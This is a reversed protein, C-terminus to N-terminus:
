SLEILRYVISARAPSSTCYPFRFYKANTRHTRGRTSRAVQSNANRAGCSGQQQAARRLHLQARRIVYGGLGLALEDAPGALVSSIHSFADVLLRPSLGVLHHDSRHSDEAVWCRTPCEGRGPRISRGRGSRGRTASPLLPWARRSVRGCAASCREGALAPPSVLRAALTRAALKGYDIRDVLEVLQHM